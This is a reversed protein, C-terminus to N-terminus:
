FGLDGIANHELKCAGHGEELWDSYRRVFTSWYLIYKSETKEKSLHAVYNKVALELEEVDKQTKIRSVLYRMGEAKGLHRPYLDKYIKEVHKSMNM